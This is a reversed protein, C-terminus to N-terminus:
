LIITVNISSWNLMQVSIGHRNSLLIDQNTSSISKKLESYYQNTDDVIGSNRPDPSGSEKFHGNYWTYLFQGVIWNQSFLTKVINNYAIAREQQTEVTQPHWRSVIIGADVGAFGFEGVIIPRGTLDHFSRKLDDLYEKIYFGRERNYKPYINVGILDFPSFIDAVRAFAESAYGPGEYAFRNSIILKHIGGLSDEKNRINIIVTDVYKKYIVREFGYLDDIVRSDNFHRIKPKINGTSISNFSSYNYNFLGSSSWANNLDNISAYPGHPPPTYGSYNFTGNLWSVFAESCYTSWFYNHLEGFYIENDTWYGISDNTNLFYTDISNVASQAFSQWSPDFPDPFLHAGSEGYPNGNEDKLVWSPIGSAESGFNLWKISHTTPSSITKRIGANLHLDVYSKVRNEDAIYKLLSSNPNDLYQFVFPNTNKSFSHSSIGSVWFASGDPDVLWWVGNFQQVSVTMNSSFVHRPTKQPEPPSYILFPTVRKAEERSIIMMGLDDIWVSGISNDLQIGIQFSTSNLPVTDIVFHFMTWETENGLYYSEQILTTNSIDKHKYRILISGPKMNSSKYFGYLLYYNSSYGEVYYNLSSVRIREEWSDLNYCNSLKVCKNGKHCVNSDNIFEIDGNAQEAYWGSPSKLGEEFGGNFILNSRGSLNLVIPHISPPTSSGTLALVLGGVSAILVVISCSYVLKTHKECFGM